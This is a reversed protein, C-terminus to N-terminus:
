DHFKGALMEVGILIHQDNLYCHCVGSLGGAGKIVIIGNRHAGLIFGLNANVKIMCKVNCKPNSLGRELNKKEGHLTCYKGCAFTICFQLTFGVSPMPSLLTKQAVAILSLCIDVILVLHHCLYQAHYFM